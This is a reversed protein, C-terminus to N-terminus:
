ELKQDGAWYWPLKVDHCADGMQELTREKKSEVSEKENCLYSFIVDTLDVNLLRIIGKIKKSSM